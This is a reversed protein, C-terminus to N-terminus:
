IPLTTVSLLHISSVPNFLGPMCQGVKEHLFLILIKLVINFTHKKKSRLWLSYGHCCGSFELCEYIFAESVNEFNFPLCSPM